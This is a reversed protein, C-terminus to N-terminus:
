RAHEPCLDTWMDLAVSMSTSKWGQRSARLRLEWALQKRQGADVTLDVIKSRPRFEHSCDDCSLRVCGNVKLVSV